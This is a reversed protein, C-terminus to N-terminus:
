DKQKKDNERKYYFLYQQVYGSLDKYTNVLEISIKNPMTENGGLNEKYVKEIWTDVPFSDSRGYGFLTICNAVKKGIGYIKTLEKILNDTSLANLSYLDFGENLLKAFNKIYSSRYGLGLKKYEEEEIKSLTEVTPFSYYEIDDFCRKEGYNKSLREITKKIRTINNNQSIIFSFAVEVLDQKLIRIGKGYNLSTNIFPNNFSLIKSEIDKYDRTLDFYNKFYNPETTKIYTYENDSYLYCCKDKSIVLYGDKHKEYRFVQGCDLTATPCFFEKEFKIIEFNNLM